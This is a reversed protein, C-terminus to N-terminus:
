LITHFEPSKGLVKIDFGNKFFIRGLNLKYGGIESKISNNNPEFVDDQSSSRMENGPSGAQPKSRSNLSVDGCSSYRSLKNRPNPLSESSSSSPDKNEEGAEEFKEVKRKVSEIQRQLERNKAKTETLETEQDKCKNAEKNLKSTKNELDTVKNKFEEIQRNDMELKRLKSRSESVEKRHREMEDELRERYKRVEERHKQRMVEVKSELDDIKRELDREKATGALSVKGRKVAKTYRELEDEHELRMQAITDELSKIKLQLEEVTLVNEQQFKEKYRKIEADYRVQMQEMSLELEQLKVKLSENEALIGPVAGITTKRIKEQDFAQKYLKIEKQYKTDIEEMERQMQYIKNSMEENRRLGFKTASEAKKITNHLTEREKDFEEQIQAINEQLERIQGDTQDLGTANSSSLRPSAVTGSASAAQIAVLMDSQLQEVEERHKEDKERMEHEHSARM